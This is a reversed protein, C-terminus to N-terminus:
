AGIHLWNILMCIILTMAAWLFFCGLNAPRLDRPATGLIIPERFHTNVIYIMTFVLVERVAHAPNHRLNHDAGVLAFEDAEDIDHAPLPIPVRAARILDHIIIENADRNAFPARNAPTDTSRGVAGALRVTLVLTHDSSLSDVGIFRLAPNINTFSNTNM